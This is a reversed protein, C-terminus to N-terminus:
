FFKYLCKNWISQTFFQIKELKLNMSVNKYDIIPPNKVSLPCKKSFKSDSKQFLSLKNMSGSNKRQFKKNKRKM